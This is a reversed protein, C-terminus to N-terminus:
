RESKSCQLPWIVSEFLLAVEEEGEETGLVQRKKLKERPWMGKVLAM